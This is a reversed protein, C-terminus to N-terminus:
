LHFRKTIWKQITDTLKNEYGIYSHTAGRIIEVTTDPTNKTKLKIIKAAFEVSPKMFTDESGFIILMPEKVESIINWNPSNPNHYPTLTGRGEETLYGFYMLNSTAYSVPSLKKPLLKNGGGEKVMKAVKKSTAEYEKKGLAYYM